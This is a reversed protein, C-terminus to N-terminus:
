EAEKRIQELASTLEQVTRWGPHTRDGDVDVQSLLGELDAVACVAADRLRPTPKVTETERITIELGSERLVGILRIAYDDVEAPGKFDEPDFHWDEFIRRLREVPDPFDETRADTHSEWREWDAETMDDFDPWPSDWNVDQQLRTPDSLWYPDAWNKRCNLVAQNERPM